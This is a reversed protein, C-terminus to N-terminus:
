RYRLRYDLDMAVVEKRELVFGLWALPFPKKVTELVHQKLHYYWKYTYHVAVAVTVM